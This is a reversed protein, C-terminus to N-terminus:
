TINLKIRQHFEPLTSRDNPEIQLKNFISKLRLHAVLLTNGFERKLTKLATAYFLGCTGVTEIAKRAEGDLANLLYTM